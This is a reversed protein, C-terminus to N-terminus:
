PPVEEAQQSVAEAHLDAFLPTSLYREGFSPIIVVINKDRNEELRGLEIAAAVAAGSSIGIFIGEKTALARATLMAKEANVKIIQDILDLHCNNPVFGAGIGQIKHPGPAGGSLVPSEAPEVAAVKLQPNVTRLFQTVGTITGGTGVGSVFIDVKGETQAWIEPGTTERHVKPNDTNNFQQLMFGRSGLGAVIEEAKRITGKIGKDGPTLVLKAGLAKLMVRRELSMTNPMVLIIQYGKAAAVMALGIGTNGSTPEVLVTEGPIIDGRLEAEEIMSKGIRDKVSSCPEMSELKLIINAIVGNEKGYRGLRVCPTAGILDLISNAILPRYLPDSQKDAM